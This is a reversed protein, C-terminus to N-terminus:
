TYNYSLKIYYLIHVTRMHVTYPHIYIYIYIYTYIYAWICLLIVPEKKYIQFQKGRLEKNIQFRKGPLRKNIQFRRGASPGRPGM